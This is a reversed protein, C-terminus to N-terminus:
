VADRRRAELKEDNEELWTEFQGFLEPWVEDYEHHFTDMCLTMADLHRDGNLEM